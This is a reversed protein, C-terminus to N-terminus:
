VTNGAGLDALGPVHGRDSGEVDSGAGDLLGGLILKGVEVAHHPSAAVLSADVQTASCSRSRSRSRVFAPRSRARRWPFLIPLGRM